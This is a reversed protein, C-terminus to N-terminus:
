RKVEMGIVGGARVYRFLSNDYKLTMVYIDGDVHMRVPRYSSSFVIEGLQAGNKIQHVDRHFILGASSSKRSSEINKSDGFPNIDIDINPLEYYIFHTRDSSLLEYQKPSAPSKFEEGSADRLVKRMLNTEVPTIVEFKWDEKRDFFYSYFYKQAIEEISISVTRNIEDQLMHSLESGYTQAQDLAQSVQDKNTALFVYDIAYESGFLLERIKDLGSGHTGDSESRVRVKKKVHYVKPKNKM